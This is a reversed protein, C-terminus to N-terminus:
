AGAATGGTTGCRAPSDGCVSPFALLGLLAGPMHRALDTGALWGARTCAAYPCVRLELTHASPFLLPADSPDDTLPATGSPLALEPESPVDSDFMPTVPAKNCSMHACSRLRLHMTEALPCRLAHSIPLGEEHSVNCTHFEAHLTRLHPLEVPAALHACATSLRLHTVRSAASLMRRFAACYQGCCQQQPAAQHEFLELRALATAARLLGAVSDLVAPTYCEETLSLAQLRGMLGADEKLVNITDETMDVDTFKLSTLSTAFRLARGLARASAESNIGYVESPGQSTSLELSRLFHCDTGPLLCLPLLTSAATQETCPLSLPSIDLTFAAEDSMIMTNLMLTQLAVPAVSLAKRIGGLGEIASRLVRQVISDPLVSLAEIMVEYNANTDANQCAREDPQVRHVGPVTSRSTKAMADTAICAQVAGGLRQIWQDDEAECLM